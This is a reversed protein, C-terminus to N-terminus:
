FFISEERFEFGFQGCAKELKGKKYKRRLRWVFAVGKVFRSELLRRYSLGSVSASDEDGSSDSSEQLGLDLNDQNYAPFLSSSPQESSLASQNGSPEAAFSVSIATSSM